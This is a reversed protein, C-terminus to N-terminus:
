SGPRFLGLLALGGMFLSLLLLTGGVMLVLKGAPTGGFAALQRFFPSGQTDASALELSLDPLAAEEGEHAQAAEKQALDWASLEFEIEAGARDAPRVPRGGAPHATATPAPEPADLVAFCQTCWSVGPARTAGCQPCATDSHPQQRATTESM